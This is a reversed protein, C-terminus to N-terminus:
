NNCFENLLWFACAENKNIYAKLLNMMPPIQTKNHARQLVTLYFSAAFKFVRLELEPILSEQIPISVDIPDPINPDCKYEEPCQQRVLDFDNNKTL